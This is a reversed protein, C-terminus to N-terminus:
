IKSEAKGGGSIKRLIVKDHYEKLNNAGSYSFASKVGDSIERIIYKVHGRFPVTRVIGEVFEHSMGSKVKNEGSASGGYTKYYQGEPNRYVNGPTESTGSIMSGVMVADSFALAKSVDGTLKIGGDAIVKINRHGVFKLMQVEEWIDILAQLQPVGVGCFARTMCSFGPGTGVKVCDAGWKALNRAAEKTAINGAIIYVSYSVEKRIFELMEKVLIHDGHAVDVCFIRAGAEFLKLFREKEEEKVGVSVGFKRGPNLTNINLNKLETCIKKYDEVNQEITMFRHLIGMSGLRTLEVVMKTGSIDRMNAGIIPIKLSINEHFESSFESYIDVNSRSKVESYQPVILVDSFTIATDEILTAM